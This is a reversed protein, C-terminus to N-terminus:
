EAIEIYFLLNSNSPIGQGRGKAGYALKSPIFLSVEDGRNLLPITLDWGSIVENSGLIFRVGRNKSFTEDFVKAKHELVGVYHVEVKEGNNPQAGDGKEHVIYGVGADTYTFELEGRLYDERVEMLFAIRDKSRKQLKSKTLKKM